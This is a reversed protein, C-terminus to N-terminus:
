LIGVFGLVAITGICAIVNLVRCARERGMKGFLGFVLIGIAGGLSNGIFDTIDSAGIALVFQLTEFLLSVGAMVAIRKWVQMKPMLMSLYVGFPVFVLINYVIERVSIRGNIVMSGAFPILNVSRFGGLDKISVSMKLLILWTLMVLYILFLIVTLSRNFKQVKEKNKM